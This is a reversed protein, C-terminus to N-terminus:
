RRWRGTNMWAILPLIPVGWGMGAIVYFVLRAAWHDPVYDSILTIVAIYVCLFVLIGALGILKRTRASMLSM